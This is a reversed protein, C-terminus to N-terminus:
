KNKRFVRGIPNVTIPKTNKVGFLINVSIFNHGKQVKWGKELMNENTSYIWDACDNVAYIPRIDLKNQTASFGAIRCKLLKGNETFELYDDKHLICIEKAAPHPKNNIIEKKIVTQNDSNKTVHDRRIYQAKYTKKEGPMEWIIAACYDEPALYRPIKGSTIEISM